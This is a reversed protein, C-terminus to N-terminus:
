EDRKQSLYLFFPSLLWPIHGIVRLGLVLNKSLSTAVVFYIFGLPILFMGIIMFIMRKKTVPDTVKRSVILLYTSSILFVVIPVASIISGFLSINQTVQFSGSPPLTAPDIANNQDDVVEVSINLVMLVAIIMTIIVGVLTFNNKISEEGKAIVRTSLFFLYANLVVAVLQISWLINAIEFSEPNLAAILNIIADFTFYFAFLLFGISFFTNILYERQKKVKFAAILFFIIEVLKIISLVYQNPDIGEM